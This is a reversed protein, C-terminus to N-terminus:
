KAQPLVLWSSIRLNEQFIPVRGLGDTVYRMHCGTEARRAFTRGSRLSQPANSVLTRGSSPLVRYSLTLQGM